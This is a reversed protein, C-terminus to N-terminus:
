GETLRTFDVNEYIEALTLRCDIGEIILAESENEFVTLLWQYDSQKVYHEVRKREQTVLLYDTIEELQRYHAFKDGRDYAETSKSLVEIIVKPNTIANADREDYQVAGCVVTVDPYTYLGTNPIKVRVDISFVQCKRGRLQFNLASSLNVTIRNHQPTSGAMDFIQGAFYEHRVESQQEQELYQDLTFYPEPLSSM